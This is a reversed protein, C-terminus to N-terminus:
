WDARVDGNGDVSGGGMVMVVVAVMMLMVWSCGSSASFFNEIM